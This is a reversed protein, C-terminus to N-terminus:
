AFAAGISKEARAERRRLREAVRQRRRIVRDVSSYKSRTDTSVDSDSGDISVGDSCFLAGKSISGVSVSSTNMM